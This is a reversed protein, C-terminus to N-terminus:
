HAPLFAGSYLQCAAVSRCTTATVKPPHRACCPLSSHHLNTTTRGCPIPPQFSFNSAEPPPQLFSARARYADAFPNTSTWLARLPPLTTPHLASPALSHFCHVSPEVCIRCAHTLDSCAPPQHRRGRWPMGASRPLSARRHDHQTEWWDVEGDLNILM